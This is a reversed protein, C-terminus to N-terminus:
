LKGIQAKQYERMIDKPTRWAPSSDGKAKAAARKRKDRSLYLLYMWYALAVLHIGVLVSLISALQHM